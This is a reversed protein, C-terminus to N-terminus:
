LQIKISIKSREIKGYEDKLIECKKWEFSSGITFKRLKRCSNIVDWLFLLNSLM